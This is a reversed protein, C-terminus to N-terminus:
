RGHFVDDKEHARRPLFFLDESCLLEGISLSLHAQSFFSNKTMILLSTDRKENLRLACIFGALHTHAKIAAAKELSCFLNRPINKHSKQLFTFVKSNNAEL